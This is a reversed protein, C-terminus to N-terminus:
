GTPSNAFVSDQMWVIGYCEDLSSILHQFMSRHPHVRSIDQQTFTTLCVLGRLTPNWRYSVHPIRLDVIVSLLDIPLHRPSPSIPPHCSIPIPNRKPTRFNIASFFLPSNGPPGTPAQTRGRTPSSLDGLSHLMALFLIFYFLIFYISQPSESYVLLWQVTCQFPHM